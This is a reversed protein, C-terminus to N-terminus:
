HAQPARRGAERPAPTPERMGKGEAMHRVAEQGERMVMGTERAIDEGVGALRDFGEKYDQTTQGILDAHVTVFEQPTRCEALRQPWIASQRVQRQWLDLWTRTLETAFNHSLNTLRAAADLFSQQAQFFTKPDALAMNSIDSQYDTSLRKSPM